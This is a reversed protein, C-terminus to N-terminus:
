FAARRRAQYREFLDLQERRVGSQPEPMDGFVMTMDTDTTYAPWAPLGEGNPDGTTAFNVWYSAMQDALARDVEDYDRNSVPAAGRGFTNFVYAVDVSHYAGLSESDPGPPVRTFHYLYASSSVTAMLTAGTWGSWGFQRDGYSRFFVRRAEQDTTAPYLDDHEAALDGLTERTQARHAALSDPAADAQLTSGEDATWGLIMPVNRQNGAAFASYVSEELVWGDVTARVTGTFSGDGTRVTQIVDAANVARMYELSLPLDEGLDQILNTANALLVEVFREGVAEASDGHLSPARLRPTDDFSGVSQAIARHFLGEALPSAMLVSVSRAGASQGFVTVRQPDGGFAAINDQVWRLAAMQDLIGYNGSADNPDEESLLPHALFGFAGLRYNLTVVVLGRRALATGDYREAAGSGNRLGGGHIWVMVPQADGPAAATWVNLYLCDEDLADPGAGYFTRAFTGPQRELQLCAPSFQTANRTGDWPEVPQPPRWRLDRVPPAAYPIGRYVRVEGDTDFVAGAITGGTVAATLSSSTPASEESGGCGTTGLVLVLLGLLAQGPRMDLVPSTFRIM